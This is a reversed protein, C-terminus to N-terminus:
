KREEQGWARKGFLMEGVLNSGCETLCHQANCTEYAREAAALWQSDKVFKVSIEALRPCDTRHHLRNLAHITFESMEFTLATGLKEGFIHNAKPNENIKWQYGISRLLIKVRINYMSKWGQKM